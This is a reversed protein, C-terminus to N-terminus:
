KIRKRFQFVDFANVKGLINCNYASGDWILSVKIFKGPRFSRYDNDTIYTTFKCIIGLHCKCRFTCELAFSIAGEIVEM